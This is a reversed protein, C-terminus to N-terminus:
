QASVAIRKKISDLIKKSEDPYIKILHTRMLAASPEKAGQLLVAISRSPQRPMHCDICNQNIVSVIATSSKSINKHEPTHCSLCRQSLLAAKGRENEHPNHCSSCNMESKVFCKSGALQGYQNGHVDIEAASEGASYFLFYDALADGAKFSFSPKIKMLRGGHCMACLDLNQQRTLRAPKIIYEGVTDKSNQLHFEVHKAAPGHCKECDVGYLVKNRDFEEDESSPDSIKEVYTSHCELCRSTVPRNFVVKDPYAPSNSWQHLATFYSIPLQSLRNGMWNLYTQGKTGSGIVIDISRAVKDAGNRDAVQYFSDNRKEMIVRVQDKFLFTNKGNEFSGKIYRESAPQSTLYHATNTHSEYINKHCGACAASGAFSEGEKNKIAAKEAKQDDICKTLVFISLGILLITIFSRRIKIRASM